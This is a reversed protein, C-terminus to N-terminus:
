RSRVVIYLFHDPHRLAGWLQLIPSDLPVDVGQVSVAPLVLGGGRSGATTGEGRGRSDDSSGGRGDGGAEETGRGVGHADQENVGGGGEASQATALSPAMGTEAVASDEGGGGGGGGGAQQPRGMTGEQAQQSGDM